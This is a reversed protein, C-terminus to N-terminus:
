EPIEVKIKLTGLLVAITAMSEQTDDESLSAAALAIHTADFPIADPLTADLDVWTPKGNVELLAQTWMHYAFLDKEGAFHDAYVVGAIVRSPIGNARLLAATLVGHESCDGQGTRAVESATAFGVDLNKKKIHHFVFRRIAEARAAPEKGAEAAARAALSKVEPDNCNLTTPCATFSSSKVDAEPAAALSDMDVTVRVSGKDKVEVNQAGTGPLKPMDGQDMSLVYVAKRLGRPNDIVKDPKVFTNIMLEPAKFEKKAEAEDVAKMLMKMMGMNAETSLSLGQEDVIEVSKIGPASSSTTTWKTGKITKEGFKYEAASKGTREITAPKLSAMPDMGGGMPEITRVTITEANAAMRQRVYDNAAAPTLWTGEPLPRVSRETRGSSTVAVEMQADTFTVQMITPLKGMKMTSSMSVPKGAKTEVFTGAMTMQAGTKDRGIGFEMKSTSTILDGVTKQGQYMWGVRNGGLEVAFWREFDDGAFGARALGLVCALVCVVWGGIGRRTNM